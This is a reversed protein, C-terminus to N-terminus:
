YSIEFEVHTAQPYKKQLAVLDVAMYQSGETERVSIIEWDNHKEDWDSALPIEIGKPNPSEENFFDSVDEPIAVGAEVCADHVKKMKLWEADPKRIAKCYYSMGMAIGNGQLIAEQWGRGGGETGGQHHVQRGALARVDCLGECVAVM